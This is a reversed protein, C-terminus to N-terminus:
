CAAEIPAAAAEEEIDLEVSAEPMATEAESDPPLVTVAESDPMEDGTAGLDGSDFDPFAEETMPDIDLTEAPEKRFKMIVVILILLSLVGAVAMGIM